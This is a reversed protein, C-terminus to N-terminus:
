WNGIWSNTKTADKGFSYLDFGIRNRVPNTLYIYPQGFPDVILPPTATNTSINDTGLHTAISTYSLNSSNAAAPYGGHQARYAELANALASIEARTRDRAAKDQVGGLAGLVIGALIAIVAIVVILEILTFARWSASQPPQFDTPDAHQM